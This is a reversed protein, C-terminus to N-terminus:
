VWKSMQIGIEISCKLKRFQFDWAHMVITHLSSWESVHDATRVLARRQYTLWIYNPNCNFITYIAYCLKYRYYPMCIAHRSAQQCRFADSILTTRCFSFYMSFLLVALSWDFCIYSFPESKSQMKNTQMHKDFRACLICTFILYRSTNQHM